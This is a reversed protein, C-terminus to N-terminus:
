RRFKTCKNNTTDWEKFYEPIIECSHNTANFRENNLCCHKDFIYGGECGEVQCKFDVLFFNLCM